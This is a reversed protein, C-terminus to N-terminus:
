GRSDPLTYGQDRLKQRLTLKSIKGTATHPIEDVVLVDDPLQWSAFHPRLVDMVESPEVTAGERPVVVLVPREGWKAHPMAVAAAEFVGRHALAANELEISSIWEGGSKILDKLRDTIRVYGLADINAADGTDFWGEGDVAIAEDKLYRRVVGPGRVMLRGATEGDWPLRAGDDDALALDVTFPPHGVKLQTEIRLEDPLAAVEPKFSCLTGLPSTETMGWAHIVQVGYDIQFAEIVARPCSSGGIVVRELHPLKQGTEALHKLLPLWVTPVAASVTVGQELMEYLSAPDLNRGPLVMASGAMPASYGCSWGNAHFLPVVPMMTDRCSLGLMDPQIMAMAHLVNSRHSYVVGKPQGTTGSTYCIGCAAREDVPEWGADGDEGGVLEEYALANALGSRQCAARDGLVIFGRVGPLELAALAPAVDEDVFIWRDEAHGIVYTLQEASLRPNLSHLVAGAGPVGYWIEVHRATNWAMAGVVEGPRVGLRRLAQALKRAGEHVGSWTTRAIGGPERSVVPRGGHYRAAHDIIRGIRLPWDQMLGQM